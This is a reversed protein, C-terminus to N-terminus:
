EYVEGIEKQMKVTLDNIYKLFCDRIEEEYVNDKCKMYYEKLMKVDHFEQICDSDYKTIYYLFANKRFCAPCSKCEVLNKDYVALNSYCSYSLFDVILFFMQRLMKINYSEDIYELFKNYVINIAQCKNMKDFSFQVYSKHPTVKNLKASFYKLSQFQNDYGRDNTFVSFYINIGKTSALTYLLYNRNYVDMNKEPIYNIDEYIIKNNFTSLFNYLFTYIKDKLKESIPINSVFISAMNRISKWSDHEYLMRILKRERKSYIINDFTVNLLRYEKNNLTGDFFLNMITLLSDLGSSYLIIDDVRKM